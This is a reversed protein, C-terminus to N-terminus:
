FPNRRRRPPSFDIAAHLLLHFSNHKGPSPHLGRSSYSGHMGALVDTRLMHIPQLTSSHVRGTLLTKTGTVVQEM